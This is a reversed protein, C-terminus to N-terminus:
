YRDLRGIDRIAEDRSLEANELDVKLADREATMAALQEALDGITADAMQKEAVREQRESYLQQRAADREATVAALQARLSGIAHLAADEGSEYGATYVDLERREMEATVVALKQELEEIITKSEDERTPFM